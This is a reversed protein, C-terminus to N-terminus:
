NIYEYSIIAGPGIFYLPDSFPVDVRMNINQDADIIGAWALDPSPTVISVADNSLVFASITMRAEITKSAIVTGVGNCYLGRSTIAALEQEPLPSMVITVQAKIGNGLELNLATPVAQSVVMYNLLVNRAVKVGAEAAQRAQEARDDNVAMKQELDAMEIIALGLVSIVLFVMLTM